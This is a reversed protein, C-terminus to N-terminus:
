FDESCSDSSTCEYDDDKDDDNDEDEVVTQSKAKNAKIAKIAKLTCSRKNPRHPCTEQEQKREQVPEYKHEHVQFCYYKHPTENPLPALDEDDDEGYWLPPYPSPPRKPTM